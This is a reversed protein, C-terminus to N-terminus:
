PEASKAKEPRDEAPAEVATGGSPAPTAAPATLTENQELAPAITAAQEPAAASAQTASLAAGIAAAALTNRLRGMLRALERSALRRNEPRAADRAEARQHRRRAAALREA